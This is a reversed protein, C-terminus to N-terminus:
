KLTYTITEINNITFLVKMYYHDCNNGSCVIVCFMVLWVYWFQLFLLFAPKLNNYHRHTLINCVSYTFEAKFTYKLQSVLIEGCKVNRFHTFIFFYFLKHCNSTPM